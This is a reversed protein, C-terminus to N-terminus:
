AGAPKKRGIGVAYFERSMSRSADVRMRKVSTFYKQVPM